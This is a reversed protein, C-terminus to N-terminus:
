AIYYNLEYNHKINNGRNYVQIHLYKRQPKGNKILGITMRTTKGEKPRGQGTNVEDWWDDENIEYGRLEVNERAKQVAGSFTTFYVENISEEIIKKCQNETIIIKM